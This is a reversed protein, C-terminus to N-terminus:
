AIVDAMEVHCRDLDLEDFILQRLQEGAIAFEVDEDGIAPIRRPTADRIFLHREVIDILM